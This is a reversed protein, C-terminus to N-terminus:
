IGQVRTIRNRRIRSKALVAAHRRLQEIGELSVTAREVKVRHCGHAHQSKDESTYLRGRTVRVQKRDENGQHGAGMENEKSDIEVVSM